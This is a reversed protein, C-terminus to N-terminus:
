GQRCSQSSCGRKDLIEGRAAPRVLETAPHAKSRFSRIADIVTTTGAGNQLISESWLIHIRASSIPLTPDGHDDLTPSRWHEPNRQKRSFMVRVASFRPGLDSSEVEALRIQCLELWRLVVFDDPTFLQRFM